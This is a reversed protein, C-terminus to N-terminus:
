LQDNRNPTAIPWQVEIIFSFMSTSRRIQVYFDFISTSCQLQHNFYLIATSFHFYNSIVQHQKLFFVIEFVDDTLEVPQITLVSIPLSRYVGVVSETCMRTM